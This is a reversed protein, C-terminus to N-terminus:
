EIINARRVVDWFCVARIQYYAQWYAAMAAVYGQRAQLQQNQALLLDTYTLKGAQYINYSIEYRRQAISDALQANSM